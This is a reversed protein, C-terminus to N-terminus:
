YLKSLFKALTRPMGNQKYYQEPTENVVRYDDQNITIHSQLNAVNEVEATIWNDVAVVRYLSLLSLGGRRKTVLQGVQLM